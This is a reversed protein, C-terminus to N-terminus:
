HHRGPNPLLSQFIPDHDSWAAFSERINDWLVLEESNGERGQSVLWKELCILIHKSHSLAECLLKEADEDSLNTLWIGDPTPHGGHECHLKYDQKRFPSGELDYLHRPQFIKLRKDPDSGIWDDTLRHGHSFAYLLYEIEVLQRVLTAVPYYNKKEDLALIGALVSAAIRTVISIARAGNDSLREPAFGITGLLM